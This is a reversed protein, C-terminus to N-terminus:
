ALRSAPVPVKDAQAEVASLGPVHVVFHLYDESSALFTHAEVPELVLADGAGVRVTEGEVRAEAWGRAVLYIETLRLHLHPEDIGETAYGVAVSPDSNWPGAYWGKRAAPDAHEIRM